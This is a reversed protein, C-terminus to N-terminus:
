SGQCTSAEMVLEYNNCFNGASFIINCFFSLPSTLANIDKKNQYVTYRYIM